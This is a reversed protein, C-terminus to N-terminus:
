GDNRISTGAITALTHLPQRGAFGAEREHWHAVESEGLRWCLYIPRGDVEGPFDVLGDDYGKLEVDLETLEEALSDIERALSQARNQLELLSRNGEVVARPVSDEDFADYEGSDSADHDHNEDAAEGPLDMAPSAAAAAIECASVVERWEAHTRVIDAVIRSVLPLTRNAQSPTFVRPMGEMQAPPTGAGSPPSDGPVM